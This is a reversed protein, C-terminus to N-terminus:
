ENNLGAKVEEIISAAHKYNPTCDCWTGPISGYSVRKKFEKPTCTEFNKTDWILGDKLQIKKSLFTVSFPTADVVFFCPSCRESWYDGAQPNTAHKENVELYENKIKM